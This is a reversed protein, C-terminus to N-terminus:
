CGQKELSHFIENRLKGVNSVEPLSRGAHLATILSLTPNM